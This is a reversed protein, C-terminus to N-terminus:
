SKFVLYLNKNEGLMNFFGNYEIDGTAILTCPTSEDELMMGDPIPELEEDEEVLEFQETAPKQTENIAIPYLGQNKLIEMSDEESEASIVGKLEKGNADMAVYQYNKM